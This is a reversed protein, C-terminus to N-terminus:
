RCSRPRGSAARTSLAAAIASAWARCVASVSRIFASSAIASDDRLRARLCASTCASISAAFARDAAAPGSASASRCCAMRVWCCFTASRLASSLSRWSSVSTRLGASAARYLVSCSASAARLAATKRASASRCAVM